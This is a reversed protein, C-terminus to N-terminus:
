GEAAKKLGALVQQWTARNHDAEEQSSNNDQNLVLQTGGSVEELSWWLTHYSEPSDEAGSLPSFHTYALRRNEEVELVEGKDTYPKGEWEGSWTIPSGPKWDTELDAGMLYQRVYDPETLVAWVREPPAAVIVSAEAIHGKM